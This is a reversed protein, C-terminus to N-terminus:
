IEEEIRELLYDRSTYFLNFISTTKVYDDINRKLLWCLVKARDDFEKRMEFESIGANTSIKKLLVSKNKIKFNDDFANWVMVENPIPIKTEKEVGGVETLSSVRRLYKGKYKIREVFLICDLNRILNAPLSIPATTLRDILKSFSESHITALGGHGLAIQQFLVYAEQGRVEGVIIYDPRQRLSERLLEYLDIDRKSTAIPVRAVESIWHPHALKIEATDEISVIKLQPKIFFSLANLITTKGSATGGSILVSSGYEIALWCYAMMTLDMTGFKLLDVPTLPKESFKRITFNSGRRAIDSELTAQIRSGDPLTGDLLPRAVSITKGCRESMKMVFSDLEQKTKFMRNTVLSGFRTDKHYVYMPIGIGDCSIDEINPDHLFPELLELGIFDRFIYYRLVDKAEESQIIKFYSLADNFMNNIYQIAERKRLRTFDVDVKEQIFEKIKKLNEENEASLEPEVVNYVFEHTLDNWLIHAYAYIKGKGSRPILPYKASISKLKKEEFRPLKVDIKIEPVEIGDFKIEPENEELKKEPEAKLNLLQRLTEIDILPMQKPTEQVIPVNVQPRPKIIIKPMKKVSQEGGQAISLSQSWTDLPYWGTDYQASSSQVKKVILKM